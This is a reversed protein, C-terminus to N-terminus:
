EQGDPLSVHSENLSEPSTCRTPSHLPDLQVFTPGYLAFCPLLLSSVQQVLPTRHHIRPSLKHRIIQWSFLFPAAM